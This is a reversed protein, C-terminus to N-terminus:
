LNTTSFGKGYRENLYSSLEDIVHKGYEARAAGQQEQEVIEKGIKWYALVMYHNVSRVVQSRAQELIVVVRDFLDSPRHKSKLQKNPKPM